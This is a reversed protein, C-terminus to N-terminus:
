QWHWGKEIIALIAAALLPIIAADNYPLTSVVVTWPTCLVFAGALIGFFRAAPDAIACRRSLLAALRAVLLAGILAIGAHLYQCAIVWNADDGLMRRVPDSPGPMLAGLHLFAAEMFSPLYSYVNHDSPWLRGGGGGAGAAWEK